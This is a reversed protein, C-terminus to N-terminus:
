IVYKIFPNEFNNKIVLIRDDNVQLNCEDFIEHRNNEYTNRVTINVNMDRDDSNM